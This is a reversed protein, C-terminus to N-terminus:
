VDEIRDGLRLTPLDQHQKPRTLPRHGLQGVLQHHGLRARGLM